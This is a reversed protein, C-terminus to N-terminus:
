AGGGYEDEVVAFAQGIAHGGAFTVEGYSVSGTANGWGDVESTGYTFRPQNTGEWAGTLAGTQVGFAVLSDKGKQKDAVVACRPLLVVPTSVDEQCLWRREWQTEMSSLVRGDAGMVVQQYPKGKLIEEDEGTVLNRGVSFWTRTVKGEHFEDGAETVAVEGFGRWERERTDFYGDRYDYRTVSETAKLGLVDFSDSVRVEGVVPVPRVVPTRWPKGARKAEVLYETSSRHSISTVAGMGNDIRTLQGYFPSETLDLYVIKDEMTVWVIDTTGNGNMDAFLLKRTQYTEPLGRYDGRAPGFHGNGDNLYYVVWSGSIILLDTQGDGNVDQLFM